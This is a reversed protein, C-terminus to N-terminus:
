WRVVSRRLLVGPAALMGIRPASKLDLFMVWEVVSSTTMTVGVKTSGSVSSTLIVCGLMGIGVSFVLPKSLDNPLLSFGFGVGGGILSAIGPESTIAGAVGGAACVAGGLPGCFTM